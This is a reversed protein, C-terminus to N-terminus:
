AIVFAAGDTGKGVCKLPVGDCRLIDGIKLSSSDKQPDFLGTYYITIGGKESKPFGFDPLPRNYIDQKGTM